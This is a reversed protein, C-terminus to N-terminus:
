ENIIRYSIMKVPNPDAEPLIGYTFSKKGDKERKYIYEGGWRGEKNYYYGPQAAKCHSERIARKWANIVADKDDLNEWDYHEFFEALLEDDDTGLPAQCRYGLIIANPYVNQYIKLVNPRLYNCGLMILIKINPFRFNLSLIKDNVINMITKPWTNFPAFSIDFAPQREQGDVKYCGGLSSSLGPARYNHSEDRYYDGGWHHGSVVLVQASEFAESVAKMRAYNNYLIFRGKDDCERIYGDESTVMYGLKEGDDDAYIRTLDFRTKKQSKSIKEFVNEGVNNFLYKFKKRDMCKCLRDSYDFGSFVIENFTEQNNPSVESM